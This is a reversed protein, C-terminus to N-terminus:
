GATSASLGSVLDTAVHCLMAPVLSRRSRAIAGLLLGYACARIAGGIGQSLHAVGFLAAQAAWALNPRRTFGAIQTQLYGRFVLEESVGVVISVVVWVAREADTQPLISAVAASASAGAISAWALELARIAVFGVLALAVDGLARRATTWRRGVLGSLVLRPRARGLVVVALALAVQVAITPAYLEIWTPRPGSSSAVNPATTALGIIAVGLFLGVLAATHWLPALM